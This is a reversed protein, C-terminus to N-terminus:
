SRRRRCSRRARRGSRRRVRGGRPRRAPATPGPGRAPTPRGRHRRDDPDPSGPDHSMPREQPLAPPGLTPDTPIPPSTPSARSRDRRHAGALDIGAVNTAPGTARRRSSCARAGTSTGPSGPRSQRPRRPRLGRRGQDPGPPPGARRSRRHGDLGTRPGRPGRLLRRPRLRGPRGRHGRGARRGPAAPLGQRARRRGVVVSRETVGARHAAPPRSGPTSTTGSASPRRAAGGACGSRAATVLAPFDVLGDRHRAPDLGLADIRAVGAAM